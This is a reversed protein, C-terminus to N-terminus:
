LLEAIRQFRRILEVRSDVEVKRFISKFHNRVTHVSIFLEQAIPETDHGLLFSKLVERERLSLPRLEALDPTAHNEQRTTLNRLLVVFLCSEGEPADCTEREQLPCRLGLWKCSQDDVPQSM